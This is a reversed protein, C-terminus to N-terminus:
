KNGDEKGQYTGMAEKIVVSGNYRGLLLHNPTLPELDDPNESIYLLPQNNVIAEIETFITMLQFDRLVTNKIMTFMFNKVTRIIREWIGGM